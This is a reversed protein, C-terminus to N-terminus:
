RIQEAIFAAAAGDFQLPASPSLPEAISCARERHFQEVAALQGAVPAGGRQRTLVILTRWMNHRLMHAFIDCIM